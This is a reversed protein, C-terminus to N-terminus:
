FGLLTYTEILVINPTDNVSPIIESNEVIGRGDQYFWEGCMWSWFVHAGEETRGYIDGNEDEYANIGMISAELLDVLKSYMNYCLAVYPALRFKFM